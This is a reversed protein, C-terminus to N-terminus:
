QATRRREVSKCTQAHALYGCGGAPYVPNIFLIFNKNELHHKGVLHNKSDTLIYNLGNNLILTSKKYQHGSM